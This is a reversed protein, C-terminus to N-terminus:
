EPCDKIKGVICDLTQLERDIEKQTDVMRQIVWAKKASRTDCAKKKADPILSEAREYLRKVDDYRLETDPAANKTRWARWEILGEYAKSKMMRVEVWSWPTLVRAADWDGANKAARYSAQQVDITKAAERALFHSGFYKVPGDTGHWNKWNIGCPDKLPVGTFGYLNEVIGNPKDAAQATEPTLALQIVAVATIFAVMTAVAVMARKWGKLNLISVIVLALLAGIVPIIM